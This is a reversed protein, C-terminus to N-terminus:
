RHAFLAYERPGYLLQNLRALNENLAVAARPPLGEAPVPQLRADAEVPSRLEVRVEAFGAAAALFSLTEPHLPKEHTLDRNYVELLGVVSRPNVTELLLLGGPRLARWSEQLLAALAPPPLHEAVQAAFVGGLSGDGRGRLFDLLDGQAVDLGGARCQQVFEANGDVGLGTVGAERLLELFEGRGCGLDAVPALGSFCPLYDRLRSRIEERSGRFRAEFAAYVSDGAARAAQAAVQPPPAQGALAQRLARLEESLAGVRDRLALLGEVRRALSEQRRDFSELVLEARTTALATALRDRADVTPLLRQAYQVSAAALGRAQGQLRASSDLFGNLLQVLTSNFAQQRQLQPLLTEWVFRHLRQIAGGGQPGEALSWLENLEALRRPLDPSEEYPLRFAALRDLAALAEEYAREEGALRERLSQLAASDDSV